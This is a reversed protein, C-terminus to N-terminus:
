NIKNRIVKKLEYLTLNDPSYTELFKDEGFKEYTEAVIKRDSYKSALKRTSNRTKVPWDKLPVILNKEPCGHKWHLVVERWDRCKPIHSYVEASFKESPLIDNIACREEESDKEKENNESSLNGNSSIRNQVFDKIDVLLKERFTELSNNVSDLINSSTKSLNQVVLLRNGSSSQEFESLRQVVTAQLAKMERGVDQFTSVNSNFMRSDSGKTYLYHTYSNEYKSTEELLYRIITNMDDSTGWGGWWKVVDLSWRSKGTVFRHQAGGRRFCHATFKGLEEGAANRPIIGCASVASNICKMFTNQVMKEGFDISTGTENCRPFLPDSPLPHRGLMQKYLEIWKNVHSYACSCQEEKQEYLAYTQGNEDRTYKRDHLMVLIYPVGDENIENLSIVSITLKLLEDIRLWLSFCLSTAAMVYRSYINNREPKQMYDWLKVM